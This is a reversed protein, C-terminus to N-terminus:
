EQPNNPQDHPQPIGARFNVAYGRYYSVLHGMLELIIMRAERIYAKKKASTNEVFTKDLAAKHVEVVDRPGARLFGLSGALDKLKDSIDYEKDHILQELAMNMISIYQNVMQAFMDPEVEQLTVASQFRATVSVQSPRMLQEFARVTIEGQKEHSVQALKIQLQQREIAYLISRSLLEYNVKGKTLYDQGGSQVAKIATKKDAVGTLVIVPLEPAHERVRILTEIGRSDPLTLDLLIVDFVNNSITDLGQSLTQATKIKFKLEEPDYTLNEIVIRADGPDDEILLVNFPQRNKM